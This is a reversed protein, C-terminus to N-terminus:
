SEKKTIREVAARTAALRDLRAESLEMDRSCLAERQLDNAKVYGRLLKLKLRLAVNDVLLYASFGCCVVCMALMEYFM